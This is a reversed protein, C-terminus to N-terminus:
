GCPIRATVRFGGSGGPGAELQGGHLAVRERMGVLGLGRGDQPSAAGRGDDAVEVEVAADDVGVRVQVGPAPGAHRRVNSLAEQVVRYTTLAVAEPVTADPPPLDAEVRAGTERAQAVLDALDALRPQPRVAQGPDSRMLGLMRRMDSLATRGTASITELAPLVRQPDAAAAYRAGDAQVVMVSLGHAVVDHLDRAIRAREQAAALAAQQDATREAQEARELVATLYRARSQLTLGLAWAVLVIATITVVYPTLVAATVPGALWTDLWRYSGIFAGAIGVAVAALGARFGAFRAVSYVAIPIAVQSYLPDGLFLAQAGTAVAVAVFAALPHSRRWWLPVAELVPFVAYEWRPQGILWSPAPLVLVIVLLRDFWRRGRPGLRWPARLETQALTAVRAV